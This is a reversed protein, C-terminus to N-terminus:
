SQDDGTTQTKPTSVFTPYFQFGTEVLHHTGCPLCVLSANRSSYPSIPSFDRSALKNWSQKELIFWHTVIHANIQVLLDDMIM